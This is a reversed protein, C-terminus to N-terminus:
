GRIVQAKAAREKAKERCVELFGKDRAIAANAWMVTEELRKRAEGLAYGAPCLERLLLALEKAKDRVLPYKHTVEPDNHYTFVVDENYHDTM